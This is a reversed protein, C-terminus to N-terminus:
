AGDIVPEGAEIIAAIATLTAQEGPRPFGRAYEELLDEIKRIRMTQNAWRLQYTVLRKRTFELHRDM